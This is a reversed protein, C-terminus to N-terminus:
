SRSREMHAMTTRQVVRQRQCPRVSGSTRGKLARHVAVVALVAAPALLVALGLCTGMADTERQEMQAMQAMQAM